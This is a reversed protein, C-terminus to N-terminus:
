DPQNLLGDDKLRQHAASIMDVNFTNRKRDNWGNIAQSIEEVSYKNEHHAIWHVSSLIELGYPSEYGQILHSLRTIIEEVSASDEKLFDDAAACGAPTVHTRRDNTLFGKIMQHKEFSVFAKKLIESYPGYLNREFELGFNVGLSQLFYVIKQLSIRDFAGDFYLELESLSKLLMARAFNMALTQRSAFEPTDSNEKPEFVIIKIEGLPALKSMILPKVDAWELGGNGCGLPPMAISTIGRARIERVLADLGQEIYILKSPSRWHQKTPFNVLYRPGNSPLLHNADFILVVGPELIKSDCANKYFRFNDPWRRKFELAVGKGMVGVCNVTNVLAQAPESFMDGSKFILTM